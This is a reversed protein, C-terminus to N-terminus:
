RRMALKGVQREDFRECTGLHEEKFDSCTSQISAGTAQCVRGMDDSVPTRRSIRARQNYAQVPQKVGVSWIERVLPTGGQYGLVDIAHKCRNSSVCAGYRGFWLHEEKIDSCTSQISASTAQCVSLVVKAGSKFCAEM